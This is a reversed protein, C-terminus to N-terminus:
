EKKEEPKAEDPKADDPKAEPKEKGKTNAATPARPMPKKPAALPETGTVEMKLLVGTGPRMPYHKYSIITNAQPTTALLAAQGDLNVTVKAMPDVPVKIGLVTMEGNKYGTVPGTIMYRQTEPQPGKTPEPPLGGLGDIIAGPKNTDNANIIEIETVAETAKKQRNHVETKFRVMLPAQALQVFDTEATGTYTIVVKPDFQMIWSNQGLKLQVMKGQVGEYVAAEKSATVPKAQQNQAPVQASWILLTLLGLLFFIPRHLINRV